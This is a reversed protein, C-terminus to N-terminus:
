FRLMFIHTERVKEYLKNNQEVDNVVNEPGYIGSLFLKAEEGSVLLDIADTADEVRLFFLFDSQNRRFQQVMSAESIQPFTDYCRVM